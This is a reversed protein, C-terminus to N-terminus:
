LVSIIPVIRVNPFAPLNEILAWRKIGLRTVKKALLGQFPRRLPTWSSKRDTENAITDGRVANIQERIRVRLGVQVELPHDEV